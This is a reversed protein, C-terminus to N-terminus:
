DPKGIRPLRTELEELSVDCFGAALAISLASMITEGTSLRDQAGDTRRVLLLGAVTTRLMVAFDSAVMGNVAHLDYAALSQELIVTWLERSASEMIAAHMLMSPHTPIAAHIWSQLSVLPDARASQFAADTALRIFPAFALNPDTVIVSARLAEIRRRYPAIRFLYAILDETYAAQHGWTEKWRVVSLAAARDPDEVTIQAMNALNEPTLASSLRIGDGQHSSGQEVQHNYLILLGLNLFERTQWSNAWSARTAPLRNVRVHRLVLSLDDDQDGLVAAWDAQQYARTVTPPSDATM